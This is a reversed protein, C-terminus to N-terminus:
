CLAFCNVSRYLYLVSSFGFFFFFSFFVMWVAYLENSTLLLSSVSFFIVSQRGVVVISAKTGLVPKPATVPPLSQQHQEDPATGGSPPPPGGQEFIRQRQALREMSALRYAAAASPTYSKPLTPPPTPKAVGGGNEGNIMAARSVPSSFSTDTLHDCARHECRFGLGVDLPDSFFFFVSPHGFGGKGAYYPVRQAVIEDLQFWGRVRVSCRRVLGYCSVLARGGLHTCPCACRVAFVRCVAPSSSRRSNLCLEGAAAHRSPQPVPPIQSGARYRSARWIGM